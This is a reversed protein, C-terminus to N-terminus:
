SGVDLVDLGTRRASALASQVRQDGRRQHDLVLHEAHQQHARRAPSGEAAVIALEQALEGAVHRQRRVLRPQVARQLAGVLVQALRLLRHHLLLAQAREALDRAADRVVDVVRQRGRRQVRLRHQRV